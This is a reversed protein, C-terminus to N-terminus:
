GPKTYGLIVYGLQRFLTYVLSVPLGVVNSYSGDIRSVFRSALGQVAYAGAKDRPEGTAVYWNIEEETLESMTVRTTEVHTLYRGASGISVGTLVDHARGSLRRLMRKADREDAPKGLPEGDIVVITDAGLVLADAHHAAAAQAKTEALRAAAHDPREEPRLREDVEVPYVEFDFGASHLLEARRPSASALVLHM